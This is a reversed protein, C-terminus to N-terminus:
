AAERLKKGAAKRKGFLITRISMREAKAEGALESYSVAKDQKTEIEDPVFIVGGSVSSYARM